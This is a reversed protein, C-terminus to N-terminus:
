IFHINIRPKRMTMTKRTEYKTQQQETCVRKEGNRNSPQIFSHIFSPHIFSHIFSLSNIQQAKLIYVCIILVEFRATAVSNRRRQLLESWRQFGGLIRKFPYLPKNRPCLPRPM